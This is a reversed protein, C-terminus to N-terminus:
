GNVVIDAYQPVCNSVSKENKVGFKNTITAGEDAACQGPM